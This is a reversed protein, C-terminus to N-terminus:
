APCAAEIARAVAIKVQHVKYGNKSLPTADKAAAEGAKMAGESNFGSGSHIALGDLAKSGAKSQWPTPAVHGLVVKAQKAVKESGAGGCEFAVAAAVMPWDLGKRQRIEYTANCLGKMPIAIGTLIENPKLVSERDDEAKPTVFFESAKVERSGSAGQLTIVADLAILGPALGSPHVFYAPGANGFIAHYRNDGDPVVSKGKATGFLGLGQRYFWCRPRQLVEGGVTGANLMQASGINSAATALGPFHKQVDANAIFQSLRTAGGVQLNGDKVGIGALEKVNKLSVVLGPHTLDQKMSTLLDTGGALVETKGWTDSLLSIAEDLTAPRALEFAKM